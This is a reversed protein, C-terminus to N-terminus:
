FPRLKEPVADRKGDRVPKVVGSKKQPKLFLVLLVFFVILLLLRPLMELFNQWLHHLASKTTRRAFGSARGKIVALHGKAAQSSLRPSPHASPRFVSPAPSASTSTPPAMQSQAPANATAVPQVSPSSRKPQLANLFEEISQPRDDGKLQLAWKIADEVAPTIKQFSRLPVVDEGAMRAPAEPPVQGSLLYYFTAGLAYLDTYPGFKAQRGYQEPPSYGLSGFRLANTLRLTHYTDVPALEKNLGFDLLVVRDKASIRAHNGDACVIVNDPKIDRHIFHARHVEILAAGVQEIFSLALPEPLPGREAVLEELTPGKLFEMVLYATNNEQFTSDVRVIGPHRFASLLRAESLFGERAKIQDAESMSAPFHVNQGSRVCGEPFFEKVAVHSQRAGKGAETDQAQYTVGFGGRGLVQGVVFRGENLALGSDLTDKTASMALSMALSLYDSLFLNFRLSASLASAFLAEPWCCACVGPGSQGGGPVAGLGEGVERM